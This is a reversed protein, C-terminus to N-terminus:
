GENYAPGTMGMCLDFKHLAQRIERLSVYGIGRVDLIHLETKCTLDSVYDYGARRLAYYPRCSIELRDLDIKTAEGLALVLADGDANFFWATDGEELTDSPQEIVGQVMLGSAELLDLDDIDCRDCGESFIASVRRTAAIVQLSYNM